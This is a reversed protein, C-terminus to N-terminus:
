QKTQFKNFLKSSAIMFFAVLPSQAIGMLWRSITYEDGGLQNNIIYNYAMSIGSLVLLLAYIYIIWYANKKNLCISKVALFTTLFYLLFYFITLFYKLYYLTTYDLSKFILLSNPLRYDVNKYYLTFLQNNINVFMFERSFGLIAFLSM